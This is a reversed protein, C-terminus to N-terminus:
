LTNHLDEISVGKEEALKQRYELLGQTWIETIIEDSVDPNRERYNNWSLGSEKLNEM